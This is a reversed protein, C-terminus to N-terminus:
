TAHEEGIVPEQPQLQLRGFGERMVSSERTIWMGSGMHFEYVWMRAKGKRVTVEFPQPRNTLLLIKGKLMFKAKATESHYYSVQRKVLVLRKQENDLISKIANNLLKKASLITHDISSRGVGFMEGIDVKRIGKSPQVQDLCYIERGSLLHELCEKDIFVQDDRYGQKDIVYSM